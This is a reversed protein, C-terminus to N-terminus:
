LWLVKSIEEQCSCENVDSFNLGKASKVLEGRAANEEGGLM